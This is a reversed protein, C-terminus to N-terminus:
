SDPWADERVDCGGRKILHSWKSKAFDSYEHATWVREWGEIM